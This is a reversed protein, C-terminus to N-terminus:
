KVRGYKDIKLGKKNAFGPKVKADVESKIVQKKGKHKLTYNVKTPNWKSGVNTITFQVAKLSSSVEESLQNYDAVFGEPPTVAVEVGWDGVSEFVFPYLEQTDSWEVYAPEIIWLESGSIKTSKAPTKKGDAKTIQQLYKKMTVTNPDNYPACQFDSASVGMINETATKTVGPGAMVVYDGAPLSILAKGNADTTGVGVFDGSCAGNFGPYPLAYDAICGYNNPAVSDGCYQRWCASASKDIVVVNLNALPEKSSAPKAGSGVIHNEATVELAGCTSTQTIKVTENPTLYYGFIGIEPGGFAAANTVLVVYDGSPLQSFNAPTWSASWNGSSDPAIAGTPLIYSPLNPAAPFGGVFYCGAQACRQVEQILGAGPNFEGIKLLHFLINSNPLGGFHASTGPVEAATPWGTGISSMTEGPAFNRAFLDSYYTGGSIDATGAPMDIFNCSETTTGDTLSIEQWVGAGSIYNHPEYEATKAGYDTWERKIKPIIERGLQNSLTVLLSNVPRDFLISYSSSPNDILAPDLASASSDIMFSDRNQPNPPETPECGLYPAILAFNSFHTTQLTLTNNVMDLTAGQATWGSVPDNYYIDLFREQALSPLMSENYRFIITVPQGFTAGAPLIDYSIFVQGGGKNTSVRFNSQDPILQVNTDESVAGPPFIVTLDGASSEITGGESPTIVAQAIAVSEVFKGYSFSGLWWIEPNLWPALPINALRGLILAGGGLAGGLRSTDLMTTTCTFRGQEDVPLYGTNPDTESCSVIDSQSPCFVGDPVQYKCKYSGGPKYYALYFDYGALVQPLQGTITLSAGEPIYNVGNRVNEFSLSMQGTVTVDVSNSASFGAGDSFTVTVRVPEPLASGVFIKYEPGSNNLYDLKNGITTALHNLLEQASPGQPDLKSIAVNYGLASNDAATKLEPALLEIDIINPYYPNVAMAFAPDAKAKQVGLQTNYLTAAILIIGLAMITFSFILFSHLPKNKIYQGSRHLLHAM